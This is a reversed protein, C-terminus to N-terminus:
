NANAKEVTLRLPDESNHLEVECESPKRHIQLRGLESEELSMPQKEEFDGVEDKRIEPQQLAPRIAFTIFVAVTAGVAFGALVDSWHHMYDSVRSLGTFWAIFLLSTQLVIKFFSTTLCSTPMNRQLYLVTYLMLFMIHSSHGSPFSLRIERMDRHSLTSTCSFNEVYTMGGSCLWTLNSPQCVSIFHPRLRGISFKGIDTALETITVGLLFSILYLYISNALNSPTTRVHGPSRFRFRLLEVGIVTVIPILGLSVLVGVSVTNKHYPYRISPDDCFFGRKYPVGIVNYLIAPISFVLISSIHCVVRIFAEKWSTM